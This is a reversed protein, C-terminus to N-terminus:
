KKQNKKLNKLMKAAKERVVPNKNTKAAEGLLRRLMAKDRQRLLNRSAQNAIINQKDGLLPI